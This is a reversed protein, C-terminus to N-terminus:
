PILAVAIFELQWSTVPNSHSLTGELKGSAGPLVAGGAPDEAPGGGGLRVWGGEVVAPFPPLLGSGTLFAPEQPGAQVLGIPIRM